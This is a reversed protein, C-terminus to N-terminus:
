KKLDARAQAVFTDVIQMQRAPNAQAGIVYRGQVAITPVGDFKYNNTLQIARRVKSEVAFSKAISQYKDAAIGKGALWQELQQQNTYRLGDKHIADFFPKHLKDLQGMAELAYHVRAALAWNENFVAPVRRFTVDAPLKAAWPDIVPELNYCHPCGYWFFELVEVKGGADTPQPPNLEYYDKGLAPPPGQTWAAFPLGALLGGIALTVRRRTTCGCAEQM